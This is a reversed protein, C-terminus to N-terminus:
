RLAERAFAVATMQNGASLLEASHARDLHVLARAIKEEATRARTEWERAVNFLTEETETVRLEVHREALQAERGM